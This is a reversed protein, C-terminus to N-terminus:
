ASDRRPSVRRVAPDGAPDPLPRGAPGGSRDPGHLMRPPLGPPLPPEGAEELVEDFADRGRSGAPLSATTLPRFGTEPATLEVVRWVGRHRELRVAIATTRPGQEILVVAECANRSPHTSIVRRVRARPSRPALPAAPMQALLRRQVSPAVLPTLQRLPRRGDRVELWAQALLGALRAPDPGRPQDPHRNTAPPRSPLTTM